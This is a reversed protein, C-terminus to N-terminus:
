AIMNQIDRQQDPRLDRNKVEARSQRAGHFREISRWRYSCRQWIRGQATRHSRSAAYTQLVAAVFSDSELTIKLIHYASMGTDHVPRRTHIAVLNTAVRLDVLRPIVPGIQHISLAACIATQESSVITSRQALDNHL